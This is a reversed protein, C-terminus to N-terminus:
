KRSSKDARDSGKQSTSDLKVAALMRRIMEGGIRGGMMGGIKGCEAATMNKWGVKEVKEALGAQRAAQKKHEEMARKFDEARDNAAM